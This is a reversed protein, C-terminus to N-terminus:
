PNKGTNTNNKWQKQYTIKKNYDCNALCQEYYPTTKQVIDEWHVRITAQNYITHDSQIHIYHTEDNPKQYLQYSGNNLDFKIDLYNVVEM